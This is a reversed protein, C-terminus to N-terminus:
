KTVITTNSLQLTEYSLFEEAEAESPFFLTQIISPVALCFLYSHPFHENLHFCMWTTDGFALNNLASNIQFM